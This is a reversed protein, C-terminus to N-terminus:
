VVGRDKLISMGCYVIAGLVEQEFPKGERTSAAEELKKAAQGTLFGRGHLKSYHAWPQDLFPTVNGGHREGKGYMAQEIAAILVPYLPHEKVPDTDKVQDQVWSQGNFSWGLAVLTEAALSNADPNVIQEILDNDSPVGASEEGLADVYWFVDSGTSVIKWGQESTYSDVIGVAGGRTRWQQGLALKPEDGAFTVPTDLLEMLDRDSQRDKLMDGSDDVTYEIGGLRVVWPYVSNDTRQTVTAVEGGRTRWKQGTELQM